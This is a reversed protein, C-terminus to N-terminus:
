PRCTDHLSYSCEQGKRREQLLNVLRSIRKRFQNHLRFAEIVEEQISHVIGIRGADLADQNHILESEFFARSWRYVAALSTALDEQAKAFDAKKRDWRCACTRSGPELCGELARLRSDFAETEATCEQQAKLFSLLPLSPTPGRPPYALAVGDLSLPYTSIM